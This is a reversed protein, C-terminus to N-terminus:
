NYKFLNSLDELKEKSDRPTIKLGQLYNLYLSKVGTAFQCARKNCFYIYYRDRKSKNSKSPVVLEFSIGNYIGLNFKNYPSKKSQLNGTKQLNEM